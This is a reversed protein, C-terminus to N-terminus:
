DKQSQNIQQCFKKLPMRARDLTNSNGITGPEWIPFSLYQKISVVLRGWCTGGLGVFWLYPHRCAAFTRATGLTGHDRTVNGDSGQGEVLNAKRNKLVSPDGNRSCRLGRQVTVAFHEPCPNQVPCVGHRAFALERQKVTSLDKSGGCVTSPVCLDSEHSTSDGSRIM